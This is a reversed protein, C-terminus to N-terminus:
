APIDPVLMLEIQEIRDKLMLKRKKLRRLLLTDAPPNQALYGIVSDLDRHEVQMSHMRERLFRADENNLTM